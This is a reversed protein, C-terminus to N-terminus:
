EFVKNVKKRRRKGKVTRTALESMVQARSEEGMTRWDAIEGLTRLCTTCANREVECVGVCPSKMGNKEM